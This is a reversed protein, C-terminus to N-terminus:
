RMYDYMYKLGSSKADFSSRYNLCHEINEKPLYMYIMADPYMTKGEKGMNNYFNESARFGLKYYFNFPHPRSLDINVAALTVRGQTQSDELSKQVVNKIAKTGEGRRNSRLHEINMVYQFRYDEPYRASFDTCEKVFMCGTEKSKPVAQKQPISANKRLLNKVLKGAKGATTISLIKM